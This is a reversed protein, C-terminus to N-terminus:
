GRDALRVNAPLASALRRRAMRRSALAGNPRKAAETPESHGDDGDEGAAEASAETVKRAAQGLRHNRDGAPRIELPHDFRECSAVQAVDDEEGAMAGLDDFLM